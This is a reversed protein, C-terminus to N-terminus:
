AIGRHTGISPTHCRVAGVRDDPGRQGGDMPAVVRVAGLRAMRMVDLHNVEAAHGHRHAVVAAILESEVVGVGALPDGALVSHGSGLDVTRFSPPNEATIAHWRGLILAHAFRQPDHDSSTAAADARNDGTGKRAITSADM